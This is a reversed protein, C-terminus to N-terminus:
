EKTQRPEFATIEEVVAEGHRDMERYIRWVYEGLLGLFIFACGNLFGLLAALAAFGPVEILGLAKGLVVVTAYAFCGLAIFFGIGTALRMPKVSFGVSSDIFYNIKKRFTWMSKGHERERRHYTLTKAPIGLSWAFMALNKNHGCRLLHPLFVKDMIAMDFGGDPYSPMILLRVMRYNLWAFFKTVLPDQRSSRTRVVFRQGMKWEQVMEVILEPPDQLDAALYTFCDGRAYKLGTQIAVMSGQNSLHNLVITKPRRSQIEQLIDLSKDRSGDNVFILEMEVGTAALDRELNVLAKELHLLSAENFYVPVVISLKPM